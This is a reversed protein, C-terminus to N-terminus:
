VASGGISLIRDGPAAEVCVVEMPNESSPAPNRVCRLRVKGGPPLAGCACISSHDGPSSHGCDACVGISQGDADTGVLCRGLCVRCAHDSIAFLQPVAHDGLTIRPIM